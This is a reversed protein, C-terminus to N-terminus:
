FSSKIEGWTSRTLSTGGWMFELINEWIAVGQSAYAPTFGSIVSSGDNAVCIGAQGSQPSATWGTVPTANSVTFRANLIGLGPDVWNWDSVGDVIPHGAEWVYHPIVPSSINSVGSVGMNNALTMQGASGSTWQWTSAFIKAAGTDYLDNVGMWYIDNTNNYWCELIVIDWNPSLSNLAANFSAANGNHASVTASPWLNSIATTVATGYGLQVDHYVLINQPAQAFALVSFALLIGIFFKM